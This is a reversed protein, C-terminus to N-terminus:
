PSYRRSSPWRVWWPRCSWWRALGRGAIGQILPNACLSIFLDQSPISAAPTLMPKTVCAWPLLHTEELAHGCRQFSYCVTTASLKRGHAKDRHPEVGVDAAVDIVGSRQRQDQHASDSYRPATAVRCCAHVTCEWAISVLGTAPAVPSSTSASTSHIADFVTGGDEMEVCWSQEQSYAFRRPGNRESGGGGM